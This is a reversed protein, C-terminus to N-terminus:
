ESPWSTAAGVADGCGARAGGGKAQNTERSGATRMGVELRGRSRSRRFRTKQALNNMSKTKRRPAITADNNSREASVAAPAFHSEDRALDSAVVAIRHGAGGDNDFLQLALRTRRLVARVPEVVDRGAAIVHRHAGLAVARAAGLHRDRRLARREVQDDLEVQVKGFDSDTLGM